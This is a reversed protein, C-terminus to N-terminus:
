NLTVTYTHVYDEVPPSGPPPPYAELGPCPDGTQQILTAFNECTDWWFQPNTLGKDLAAGFAECEAKNDKPLKVARITRTTPSSGSDRYRACMRYGSEAQASGATAFALPVLPALMVLLTLVRRSKQARM